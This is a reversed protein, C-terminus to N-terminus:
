KHRPWRKPMSEDAQLPHPLTSSSTSLLLLSPPQNISPSTHHIWADSSHSLDFSQITEQRFGGHHVTPLHLSTGAQLKIFPMKFSLSPKSIISPSSPATYYPFRIFTFIRLMWHQVRTVANAVRPHSHTHYHHQHHQYGPTSKIGVTPRKANSKIHEKPASPNSIVAPPYNLTLQCITIIQSNCLYLLRVIAARGQSAVALLLSVGQRTTDDLATTYLGSFVCETIGQKFAIRRQPSGNVAGLVQDVAERVLLMLREM